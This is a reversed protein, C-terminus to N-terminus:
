PSEEWVRTVAAGASRVLWDLSTGTTSLVATPAPQSQPLKLLSVLGESWHMLLLLGAVMAATRRLTGEPLLTLVLSTVLTLAAFSELLTLM